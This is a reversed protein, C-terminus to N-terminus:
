EPAHGCWHGSRAAAEVSVVRAAVCSVFTQLRMIVPECLWWLPSNWKPVEPSQETPMSVVYPIGSLYM